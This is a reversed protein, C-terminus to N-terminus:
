LLVANLQTKEAELTYKTQKQLFFAHRAVNKFFRKAVRRNSKETKRNEM